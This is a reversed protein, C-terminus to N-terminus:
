RSSSRRGRADTDMPSNSDDSHNRGAIRAAVFMIIMLVAWTLFYSYLVTSVNLYGSTAIWYAPVMSLHFGFVPALGISAIGSVVIYRLRKSTGKRLLKSALWAVFLFPSALALHFPVQFAMALLIIGITELTEM